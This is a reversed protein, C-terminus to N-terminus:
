ITVNSYSFEVLPLNCNGMFYIVCSKLMDEITQITHNAQGDTQPPFATRLKVKTGLGKQFSWWFRYTFQAVRDLIISLPISHLCVIYDIFIRTYDMTSYTSKVPIFHASKTLRDVVVRISDHKKQTQTLSVVFDM